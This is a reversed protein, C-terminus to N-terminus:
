SRRLLCISGRELPGYRDEWNVPLRNERYELDPAGDPTFGM